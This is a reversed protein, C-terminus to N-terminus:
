RMRAAQEGSRYPGPCPQGSDVVGLAARCGKGSCKAGLILVTSTLIFQAGEMGFHLAYNKRQREHM